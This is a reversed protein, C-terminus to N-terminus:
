DASKGKKKQEIIKCVTEEVKLVFADIFKKMFESREKSEMDELVDLTVATSSALMNAAMEYLIQAKISRPLDNHKELFEEMFEIYSAHALKSVLFTVKMLAKSEDLEETNM